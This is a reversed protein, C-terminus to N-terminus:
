GHNPLHPTKQWHHPKTFLELLACWAALAMMMWYPPILVATRWASFTGTLGSRGLSLFVAYSALLNASDLAMLAQTAPNSVTTMFFSVILVLTLPHALASVLGGGITLYFALAPLLGAQRCLALPQRSHVLLTQMWGKFWRKRQGMWVASQEASAELTPLTLMRSRYGMRYLRIGLDADETVNYPDWGGAAQLAEFRFHNSTGGLPFPFNFSALAPLIRQFLGAYEVAFLCALWSRAGNVILLPSQLCAIQDPLAQFMACAERIQRPHPIDEADYIVV